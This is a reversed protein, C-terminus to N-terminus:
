KIGASPLRLDRISLEVTKRGQWENFIPSYALDIEDGMGVRDAWDGNRFFVAKTAHNTGPLRLSLVCTNNDKGVRRSSLVVAGRTAFIPESNGLGFPSLQQIQGVLEHTLLGGQTIEADIELMPAVPEDGIIGEALDHMRDRFAALNAAPLAVGAAASHGGFRGLLDACAHLATHLNFDGYSRASGHYTDNTADHALLIVPRRVQEVIRGAAVGIVGTGWGERALVLVRRGSHETSLADTLADTTVRAIEERSRVALADLQVALAEAEDRDRTILLRYALDADEMRGAANLRPAIQWGIHTTDLARDLLNLNLLLARVGTKKAKALIRLGHTVLIRNESLLPTMDAVTGLAVLDLFNERFADRHQPAIRAILADMVKFAVGAGCLDRFGLSEGVDARYPNVVAVAKPLEPGPRHHDTVIVEMGLSNAYDIAALACSGCDATLILTAGQAKARDVGSVQLDYGDSRRPVFGVINAGLGTLARLCLAASTVGDVDYDGHLFIREKREIAQALREVARDIDPLGSPDYLDALEPCLYRRASEGDAIGRNLLLQATIPSLRLAAALEAAAGSDQPAFNWTVAFEAEAV